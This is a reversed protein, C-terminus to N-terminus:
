FECLLKCFLSIDAKDGEEEYALRLELQKAKKVMVRFGAYKRKSLCKVFKEYLLLQFRIFLTCVDRLQIPTLVRESGELFMKAFIM